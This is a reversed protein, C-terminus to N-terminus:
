LICREQFWCCEPTATYYYQSWPNLMPKVIQVYSALFSVWLHFSVGACLLGWKVIPLVSKCGLSAGFYPSPPPFPVLDTGSIQGLVPTCLCLALRMGLGEKLNQKRVAQFYMVKSHTWTSVGGKVMVDNWLAWPWTAAQHSYELLTCSATIYCERPYSDCVFMSFQSNMGQWAVKHSIGESLPLRAFIAERSM